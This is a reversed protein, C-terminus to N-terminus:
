NDYNFIDEGDLLQILKRAMMKYQFALDPNGEHYYQHWLDLEDELLEKLFERDVKIYDDM